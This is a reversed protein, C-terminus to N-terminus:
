QSNPNLIEYNRYLKKNIIIEEKNDSIEGGKILKESINMQRITSRISSLISYYTNILESYRLRKKLRKKLKRPIRNKM